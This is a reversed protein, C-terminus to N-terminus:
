TETIKKLPNECNFFEQATEIFAHLPTSDPATDKESYTVTFDQTASPGGLVFYMCGSDPPLAAIHADTTLLAGFGNLMLNYNMQMRSTGSTIHPAISYKGFLLTRRKNIYSFPTIHVFDVQQFLSLDTVIKEQPYSYNLLAERTIAYGRLEPAVSANEPLVVVSHQTFLTTSCYGEPVADPANVYIDALGKKLQEYSKEAEVVSLHVDVQPYKEHFIRLIKPIIRFTLHSGSIIRLTGSNTDHIDQIRQAAQQEISLIKEIAEIYVKGEPTLTFPLTKRNFIPTGLEKEAKRIAASLAPQTVFLANAAASVSKLRYVEYVYRATNDLM